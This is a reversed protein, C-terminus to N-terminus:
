GKKPPADTSGNVDVRIRLKPDQNMSDKTSAALFAQYEANSELTGGPSVRIAKWNMELGPIGGLSGQVATQRQSHVNRFIGVVSVPENTQSSLINRQVSYSVLDWAKKKNGLCAFTNQSYKVM